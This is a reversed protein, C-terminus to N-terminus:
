QEGLIKDARKGAESLAKDVPIELKLAKEIQRGLIDSIEPYARITPRTRGRLMQDNFVKILQNSELFERYTGEELVERNIPLYGTEIAWETQFDPSLIFKAFKWKADNKASDTKFVFLNEGGINTACKDRCPLPLAGCEFKNNRKAQALKDFNWPGNIVMSVRGALFDDIEPGDNLKSFVAVKEKHVLDVWFQLAKHGAPRHFATKTEKPNLFEGGAQWLFTQWVWVTWERHGLPLQLGYRHVNGDKGTNQTLKRAYTLLDDWSNLGAPSIGAEKFHDKNYYLALNNADFPVAYVAKGYSCLKWLSSYIYNPDFSKDKEMEKKIWPHLDLLAGTHALLGLGQPGWWLLDPPTNGAIAKMIKEELQDAKDYDIVKIHINPHIHEFLNIKAALARVSQDSQIGHWLILELVRDSQDSELSNCLNLEPRKEKSLTNPSFIIMAALLIIVRTMPGWAKM